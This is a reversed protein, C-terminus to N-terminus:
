RNSGNTKVEKDNILDDGALQEIWDVWNIGMPCEKLRKIFEKIYGELERYDKAEVINAGMCFHKEQFEKLKKSLNFEKM